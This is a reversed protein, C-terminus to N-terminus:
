DSKDSLGPEVALEKRGSLDVNQLTQPEQPTAVATTGNLQTKESSAQIDTKEEAEANKLEREKQDERAKKAKRWGPGVRILWFLLPSFLTWTLAAFTYTWGVSMKEIMPVVVATSGAGLLCRFLNSAATSAAAHGPNLDVMLITMIQFAAIIGYGTFFLITLPGALSTRFDLVWGYIIMCVCSLYLLPMCIQLRAKEVPFNTLDQHRNKKVPFGNKKAQRRWNWDIMRGTTFASVLSGAGFPIFVLGIRIEDFGYIAGFLSPIGTNVAYLCAVVLGGCALIIASEKDAIIVLTSLPNPVHLSYNKEVEAKMTENIPTGQRIRKRERIICTLDRNWIPPYISGDGVVKRCTEPFFLLFPVFIAVTAITLFWFIWHWGAYQAIVGGLIPGLIPGVISTISALGVYTGREASTVIDAVVGQALAVTGSSGASQLCRLVLLAAYNTQVALGINAALYITFCIIYAPRRGAGDSFGAILM